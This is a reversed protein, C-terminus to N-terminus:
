VLDVSGVVDGGVEMEEWGETSGAMVVEVSQLRGHQSYITVALINIEARLRSRKILIPLTHILALSFFSIALSRVFFAYFTVVCTFAAVPYGGVAGSAGGFEKDSFEFFVPIDIFTLIM